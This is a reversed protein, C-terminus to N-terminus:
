RWTETAPHPGCQQGAWGPPFWQGRQGVGLGDDDTGQLTDGLQKGHGAEAMRYEYRSPDTTRPLLEHRLAIRIGASRIKDEDDPQM